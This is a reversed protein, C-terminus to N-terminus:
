LLGAERMSFPAGQGLILHDLVEIGLMEGVRRLRQTIELDDESPTPDGSPHNHALIVSAASGLIAPRFVERPHVISANLSGVSVLEVGIPLHRTNLLVALFHEKPARAYHQILPVVDQPRRIPQDLGGARAYVRRGIEFTALLQCARALGLGRLRRLEALPLRALADLSGDKLVREAVDKVPTGTCGTGLVAALLERDTLTEVGAAAIQERPGSEGERVVTLTRDYRVGARRM